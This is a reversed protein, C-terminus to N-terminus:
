KFPYMTRCADRVEPNYGYALSTMEMFRAADWKASQKKEGKKRKPPKPPRAETVSFGHATLMRVLTRGIGFNQGVRAAVEALYAYRAELPRKDFGPPFGAFHHFGPVLWGAEVIIELDATTFDTQLFLLLDFLPLTGCWWARKDRDYIVLGSKDLDPDIGAVYRCKTRHLPM